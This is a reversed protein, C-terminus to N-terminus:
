VAMDIDFEGGWITVKSPDGGFYAINKQVWRLAMVQDKLGM